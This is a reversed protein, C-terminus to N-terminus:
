PYVWNSLKIVTDIKELKEQEIKDEMIWQLMEEKKPKRGVVKIKKEIVIAPALCVGFKLMNKDKTIRKTTAAIENEEVVNWVLEELSDCIRCRHGLVYIKM